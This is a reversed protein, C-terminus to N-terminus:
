RRQATSDARDLDYQSAGSGPVGAHDTALPPPGTVTDGLTNGSLAERLWRLLTPRSRAMRRKGARGPAPLRAVEERARPRGDGFRRRRVSRKGECSTATGPHRSGARSSPASWTSWRAWPRWFKLGGCPRGTAGTDDDVAAEQAAPAPSTRDVAVDLQRRHRRQRVMPPRCNAGIIGHPGRGDKTPATDNGAVAGWAAHHRHALLGVVDVGLVHDAAAAFEARHGVDALPRGVRSLLDRQEGDLNSVVEVAVGVPVVGQRQM